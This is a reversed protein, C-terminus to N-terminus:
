FAEGWHGPDSLEVSTMDQDTITHYAGHVFVLTSTRRDRGTALVEGIVLTHDGLQFRERV